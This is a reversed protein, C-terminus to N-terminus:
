LTWWKPTVEVKSITPAAWESVHPQYITNNGGDLTPIGNPLEVYYNRNISPNTKDYADQKDLDIAVMGSIPCIIKDNEAPIGEYTIGYESLNVDVPAEHYSLNKIHMIANADFVGRDFKFNTPKNTVAVIMAREIHTYSTPPTTGSEPHWSLQVATNAGYQVFYFVNFLSTSTVNEFYYDFEIMYKKNYYSVGTMNLNMLGLNTFAQTTGSYEIEGSPLVTKTIGTGAEILSHNIRDTPDTYDWRSAVSVRIQDDDKPTGTVYIYYDPLNVANALYTWTGPTFTLDMTDGLDPQGTATIGFPMGDYETGNTDKWKSSLKVNITNNVAPTYGSNLTLGFESLDANSLDPTTPWASGTYVYLNWQLNSSVNEYKFRAQYSTGNGSVAGSYNAMTDHYKKIDTVTAKPTTDTVTADYSNCFYSAYASTKLKQQITAVNVTPDSIGTCNIGTVTAIAGVYDFYYTKEIVQGGMKTIFQQTYQAMDAVTIGSVNPSTIAAKATFGYCKLTYVDTDVHSGIKNLFALANVRANRMTSSVDLTPHIFSFNIPTGNVMLTGIGGGYVCLIPKSPFETPNFITRNIFTTQNPRNFTHTIDGSKLFRQPKCSFTVSARGAQNYLNTINISEKFVALRYYEPEYDDELRAYGSASHLWNVFQKMLFIFSDKSTSGTALEYTRDVNKFSGKDIIVDGNRGPVEIIEYEHEAVDYDPYHEVQIGYQLSSRGNFNIIGM